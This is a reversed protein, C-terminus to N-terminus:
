TLVAKNVVYHLWLFWLLVAVLIFAVQWVALHMVEFFGPYYIGAIYLTVIRIINLVFLIALGIGLGILKRKILAPFAVIGAVFIAMPEAADCGKKVSVSFVPSSILDATVTNAFGFLALLGGSLRAYVNLLPTFLHHEVWPNRYLVYFLIILMAVMGVFFVFAYKKYIRSFTHSNSEGM